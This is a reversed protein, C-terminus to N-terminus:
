FEAIEINDADISTHAYIGLATRVAGPTADVSYVVTGVHIDTGGTYANDVIATISDVRIFVCAGPIGATVVANQTATNNISTITVKLTQM